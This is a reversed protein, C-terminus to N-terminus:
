GLYEIIDVSRDEMNDMMALIQEATLWTNIFKIFPGPFGKLVTIYYGTDTVIVPKKFHEYAYALSFETIEKTNKAQIEPVDVKDRKLEINYNKLIDHAIAFKMESSTNLIIEM